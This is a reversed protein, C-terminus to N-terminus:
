IYNKGIEYAQRNNLSYVIIVVATTLIESVSLALWIGKVGLLSPLILFCPTLFIFGRLFAFTIAQKSKEVSQYYGIVCLNIIFFIFAISFYPFGEIAINAAANDTDLFLGVLQTPILVFLLTVVTGCIVSTALAIKQTTTARKKLGLGLNYSIIPQASQAIANGIMFVFPLYYCAIGFAGVGNDGLYKMFVINGLYMLMALTGETLLASFGIRCQYGINRAMLVFSTKSFKIPYLKLKKAFMFLHSVAMLGGIIVSIATAFAAGMLGWGFPFIFLWDLVVNLIAATLSCVMAYKPAGDLRIVFLSITTWMQFTWSPVSWLLYEKVMPLLRESSGLLRATEEPFLMILVSPICVIATACFLAQSINIRAAKTNEKALHLSAVVSCGAGLMLGIGTFIMIFPVCLNIAAIGDSGVGHGVFIGDITTVASISLMGFLTPLFLKRFLTFVNMTGFDLADRKM